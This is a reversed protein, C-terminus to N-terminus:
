RLQVFLILIAIVASINVTSAILLPYTRRHLAYAIWATSNFLMMLFTALSLGDVSQSQFARIAQPYLAFGSVLGNAFALRDVWHHHNEVPAPQTPNLM